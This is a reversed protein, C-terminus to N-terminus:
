ETSFVRQSALPAPTCASSVMASSSSNSSPTKTSSNRGIMM